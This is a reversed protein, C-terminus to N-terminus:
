DAVERWEVQREEDLEYLRNDDDEVKLLYDQSWIIGFGIRGM